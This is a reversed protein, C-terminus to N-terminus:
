SRQFFARTQLRVAALVRAPPPPRLERLDTADLTNKILLALDTDGETTLRRAFFLTDPDEDRLALAIFDRTDASITADAPVNGLPVLGGDRVLFALRLGADRVHIAIVKDRAAPLNDANLTRGLVLNAVFAAVATPPYAPLRAVLRRLPEPISPLRMSM